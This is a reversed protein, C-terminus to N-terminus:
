WRVGVNLSLNSRVKWNDQVYSGFYSNNDYDYVPNGQLFNSVSGVM